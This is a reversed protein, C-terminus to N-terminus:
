GQNADSDERRADRYGILHGYVAGVYFGVVAAFAALILASAVSMRQMAESTTTEM